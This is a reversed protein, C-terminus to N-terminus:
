GTLGRGDAGRFGAAKEKLAHMPISDGLQRCPAGALTQGLPARIFPVRLPPGLRIPV